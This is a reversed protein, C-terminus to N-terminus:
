KIAWNIFILASYRKLLQFRTFLEDALSCREIKVSQVDTPEEIM